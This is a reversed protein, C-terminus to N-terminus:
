VVRLWSLVVLVGGGSIGVWVGVPGLGGVLMWQSAMSCSVVILSVSSVWARASMRAVCGGCVLGVASSWQSSWWARVMVVLGSVSSRVFVSRGVM